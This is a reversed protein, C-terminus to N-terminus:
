TRLRAGPVSFITFKSLSLRRHIKKETNLHFVLFMSLEVNRILHALEKM